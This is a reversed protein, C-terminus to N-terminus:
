SDKLLKLIEEYNGLMLLMKEILNPNMAIVQYLSLDTTMRRFTKTDDVATYGKGKVWENGEQWKAKILRIRPQDTKFSIAVFTEKYNISEPYYYEYGPGSYDDNEHQLHLVFTEKDDFMTRAYDVVDKYGVEYFTRKTQGILFIWKKRLNDPDEGLTRLREDVKENNALAALMRKLDQLPLAIQDAEIQTRIEFDLDAFNKATKISSSSSAM